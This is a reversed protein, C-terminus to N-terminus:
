PDVSAVPALTDCKTRSHRPNGSRHVHNEEIRDIVLLKRRPGTLQLGTDEARRYTESSREELLHWARGQELLATLHFAVRPVGVANRRVWRVLSASQGGGDDIVHKCVCCCCTTDNSESRLALLIHAYQTAESTKHLSFPLTTPQTKDPGQTQRARCAPHWCVM